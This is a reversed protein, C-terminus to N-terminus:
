ATGKASVSFFDSTFQSLVEELRPETEKGFDSYLGFAMERFIDFIEPDFHKGKGRQLMDMTKEFSISDKYPRRSTLADFVDTIAFIKAIVPIDSGQIGQLYGTGDFKEHHFQVIDISDELWKYQSLIEAGHKVHFKMIEFEEESLRGKKLLITDSIAIKGVDHLFAGKILAQMERRSIGVQEALRISYLTVRFNHLNTDSDRKAIAGGLVELMGLNAEALIKAYRYTSKNLSVVLPYVALTTVLISIVVLALSWLLHTRLRALVEEEVLYVGEFFGEPTSPPSPPPTFIQLYMRNSLYHTKHLTKETLLHRHTIKNISTEIHSYEPKVAEVLVEKRINYLEVIIFHSEKIRKETEL